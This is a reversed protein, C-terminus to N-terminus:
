NDAIYLQYFEHDGPIIWFGGYMINENYGSELLLIKRETLDNNDSYNDLMTAYDTWIPKKLTNAPAWEMSYQKFREIAWIKADRLALKIGKYDKYPISKQIDKIELRTDELCSYPILWSIKPNYKQSNYNAPDSGMTLFIWYPIRFPSMQSFKAWKRQNPKWGQSDHEEANIIFSRYGNKVEVHVAKGNRLAIIDARGSVPLYPITPDSRTLFGHHRLAKVAFPHNNDAM